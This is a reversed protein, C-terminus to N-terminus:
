TEEEQPSRSLGLTYNSRAATSGAARLSLVVALEM